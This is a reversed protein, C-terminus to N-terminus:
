ELERIHAMDTMFNLFQRSELTYTTIISAYERAIANCLPINFIISSTDSSTYLSTRWIHYDLCAKVMDCISVYKAICYVCIYNIYKLHIVANRVRNDTTYIYAINYSGDSGYCVVRYSVRRSDDLELLMTANAIYQGNTVKIHTTNHRNLKPISYMTMQTDVITDIIYNITHTHNIKMSDTFPRLQAQLTKSVTNLVLIDRIHLHGLIISTIDNNTFM